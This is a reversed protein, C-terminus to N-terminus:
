KHLSTQIMNATLNMVGISYFMVHCEHDDEAVVAVMGGYESSPFPVWYDVLYLNKMAGKTKRLLVILLKLNTLQRQLEYYVPNLHM